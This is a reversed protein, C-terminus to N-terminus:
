MAILSHRGLVRRIQKCKQGVRKDQGFSIQLNHM